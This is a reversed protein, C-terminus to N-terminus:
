LLEMWLKLIKSPKQRKKHTANKKLISSFVFQHTNSEEMSNEIHVIVVYGFELCISKCTHLVQFNFQHSISM